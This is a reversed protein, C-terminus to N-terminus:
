TVTTAAAAAAAAAAVAAAAMKNKNEDLKGHEVKRGFLLNDREFEFAGVLPIEHHHRSPFLM